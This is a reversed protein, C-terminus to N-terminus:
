AIIDNNNDNNPKWNVISDSGVISPRRLALTQACVCHCGFVALSLSKSLSSVISNLDSDVGFVSISYCM